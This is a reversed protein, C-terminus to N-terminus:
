RLFREVWAVMRQRATEWLEPSLSHGVDPYELYRLREPATAYLPALREHFARIYRAPVAEDKEAAQSFLAVPFFREVHRHPSEPWLLEWEPSGLIPTAVSLRPEDVIAAYTIEGGMSVGGIGLRDPRAWGRAYLEDIILHAEGATQRVIALYDAETAEPERAWREDNFVEAFHPFRRQGHGVADLGIALFGAQALSALHAEIKEKNGGFGHYFLMTGREVCPQIADRFVLLAPVSAITTVERGLPM